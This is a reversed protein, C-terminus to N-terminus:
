ATLYGGDVSLVHGTVMSAGPSALFLAPAIMERPLGRRGIPTRAMIFDSTLSRASDSARVLPTDFLAPAIANVRVGYSIWELALSRTMQTVAGKSQLYATAEPYVRSAGISAINIICGSRRKTMARGAVQCPLWTGWLNLRLVREWEEDPFDLAPHRAATGASNVLVDVAGHADLVSGVASEVSDRVTVDTEIFELRGRHEASRVLSEARSADKDLIVVLAGSHAFGLSIAEGLGSAGGTVLVIRGTFDFLTSVYGEPVYDEPTQDEPLKSAPAKPGEAEKNM